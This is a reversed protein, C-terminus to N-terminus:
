LMRAGAQEAAYANRKNELWALARNGRRLSLPYLLSQFVTTAAFFFLEV